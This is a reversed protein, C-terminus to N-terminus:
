FKIKPFKEKVEEKSILNKVGEIMTKYVIGEKDFNVYRVHGKNTVFCICKKKESYEKDIYIIDSYFYIYEKKGRTVQLYKKTVLYHTGKISFITFIIGSILWVAIILPQKFDWPWTIFLKFFILFIMVGVFGIAGIMALIINKKAPYLKM